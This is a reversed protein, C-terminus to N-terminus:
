VLSAEVFRLVQGARASRSVSGNGGCRVPCSEGTYSEQFTLTYCVSCASHACDTRLSSLQNIDDVACLHCVSKLPLGFLAEEHFVFNCDARWPNLAQLLSTMRSDIPLRKGVSVEERHNISSM